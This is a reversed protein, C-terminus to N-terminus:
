FHKAVTLFLLGDVTACYSHSLWRSMWRSDGINYMVFNVLM